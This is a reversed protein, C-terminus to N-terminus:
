KKSEQNICISYFIITSFLFFTQMANILLISETLSFTMCGLITCMGLYSSTRITSDPHNRCHYFLKLPILFIGLLSIFAFVGYKAFTFLYQNHPNDNNLWRKPLHIKKQKVLEYNSEKIGTHGAGFFPYKKITAVGSKWMEFRLGVSSNSHGTQYSAINHIAKNVRPSIKPYAFYFAGAVLFVFITIMKKNDTIKKLHFLDKYFFIILILLIPTFSWAGRSGSLVVATLGLGISLSIVFVPVHKRLENFSFIVFSSMLLAINGFNIVITFRGGARTFDLIYIDYIAQIGIIVSGVLAGLAVIKFSIKHQCLLCLPLTILIYRILKDFENIPLSQLLSPIIQFLAFLVLSLIFLKTNMTVSAENLKKTINKINFIATLLLILAGVSYGSRFAFTLSFFAFVSFNIVQQNTIKM